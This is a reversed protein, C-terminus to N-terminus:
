RPGQDLLRDFALNGLCCSGGLLPLVVLPVLVM